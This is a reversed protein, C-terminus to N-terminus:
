KLRSIREMIITYRLNHKFNQSLQACITELIKLFHGIIKIFLLLNIRVASM